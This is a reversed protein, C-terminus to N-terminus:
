TGILCDQDTITGHPLPVLLQEFFITNFEDTDGIGRGLSGGQELLNFSALKLRVKGDNCRRGYRVVFVYLFADFHLERHKHFFRHRYRPLISQFVLFKGQFAIRKDKDSM